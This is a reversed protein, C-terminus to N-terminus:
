SVGKNKEAMALEISAVTNASGFLKCAPNTCEVEIRDPLGYKAPYTQTGTYTVPKDCHPCNPLQSPTM